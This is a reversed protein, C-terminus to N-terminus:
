IWVSLSIAIIGFLVSKADGTDLTAALFDLFYSARVRLKNVHHAPNKQNFKNYKNMHPRKQNQRSQRLRIHM